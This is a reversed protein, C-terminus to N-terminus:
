NRSPNYLQEAIFSFSWNANNLDLIVGKDSLLKVTIKRINVPGFYSREQNQLTGGFDVFTQGISLGATKIPVLAFIDQTFPSSSSGNKKNNIRKEQLIQNASYLQKSTLKDNLISLNGSTDCNYTTRNAYSPLSIDFDTKTVTVLGDNLHNQCYDNLIILFYNYLNINISTDSRLHVVNTTAHFPNVLSYESSDRFGLIWGLTTDSKVNSSSLEGFNCKTFTNDFFVARYDVTTFITNINLNITTINLYDVIYSGKTVINSKLVININDIVQERTYYNNNDLTLRIIKTHTKKSTSLLSNSLPEIYFYNNTDDLYIDNNIFPITGSLSFNSSLLNFMTGLGFMTNWFSSLQIEFNNSRIQLYTNLNINISNNSITVISGHNILSTNSLASFKTNIADAIENLTYGGNFLFFNITETYILQDTSNYFRMKIEDDNNINITQFISNYSANISSTPGINILDLSSTTLNFVTSLISNDTEFRIRKILNSNATSLNGSLIPINTTSNTNFRLDYKYDSTSTFSNNIHNILETSSYIGPILTITTNLFNFRSDKSTITLYSDNPVNYTTTLNKSDSVIKNLENFSSNFHFLSTTGVWINDLIESPFVIATKYNIGNPVFIRNLCIKIIFKRISSDYIFSSNISDIYISNNLQLNIDNIIQEPTCSGLVSLTFKLNKIILNNTNYYQIQEDVVSSQYLLVDFFNNTNTVIFNSVPFSSIVNSKLSFPFNTKDNFGLLNRLITTKNGNVITSEDDIFKLAYNTENFVIRIDINITLKSNITNYSVSTEGFEVDTYNLKITEIVANIYSTFDTALYNGPEIEIKFDYRGDDLGDVNCKIVFFNSGYDNSITYWTYPIQVSYLKISVVDILTDSLNFTFNTSKPNVNIDRFQSDVCVIRKITEKLLPNLLGKPYNGTVTSEKFQSTDSETINPKADPQTINPKASNQVEFGEVGISDDEDENSSFFHLFVDNFFNYMKNSLKNDHGEYKDILSYIKAELERDTPNNLDMLQFLEIDTYKNVDYLETETEM